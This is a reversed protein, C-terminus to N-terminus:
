ELLLLAAKEVIRAKPVQSLRVPGVSVKGQIGIRGDRRPSAASKRHVLSQQM